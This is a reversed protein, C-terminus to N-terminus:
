IVPTVARQFKTSLKQYSHVDSPQIQKIAMNLHEMSIVSGDVSEQYCLMLVFKVKVFLSLVDMLFDHQNVCRLQQLLQRGVYLHYTLGLVVM